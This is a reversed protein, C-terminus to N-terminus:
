PGGLGIAKPETTGEPMISGRQQANEYRRQEERFRSFWGEMPAQEPWRKRRNQPPAHRRAATQSWPTGAASRGIRRRTRGCGCSRRQSPARLRSSPSVRSRGAPSCGLASGQEAAHHGPDSRGQLDGEVRPQAASVAGADAPGSGPDLGRRGDAGLRLEVTDRDRARLLELVAAQDPLPESKQGRSETVGAVVVEEVHPRLTEYLWASQLGEEFVLHKRGPIMQIAEVLAEGHTEVPFDKLKRGTQSIVALTCSAAHADLGITREM